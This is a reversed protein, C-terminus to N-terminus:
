AQWVAEQVSGPPEEMLIKAVIKEHDVVYTGNNVNNRIRSVLEERVQPTNLVARMALNFSKADGSIGFSDNAGSKGLPVSSRKIGPARAVPAEYVHSINNLKM